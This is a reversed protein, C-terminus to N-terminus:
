GAPCVVQDATDVPLTLGGGGGEGSMGKYAASM